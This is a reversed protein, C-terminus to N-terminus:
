IKGGKMREQERDYRQWMEEILEHRKVGWAFDPVWEGKRFAEYERAINRAAVRLKVWEDEEFEVLEVTDNEMEWFEVKMDPRGVNLSGSPATLRLEGKSGQIRWEITPTGPFPKGGRLHISVPIYDEGMTAQFMMQDPVTNPADKVVVEGGKAPDVVDKVAHRNALLSDWSKVEGLVAAFGEFAHGFRISVLNGGVERDMFYRVNKVETEGGNIESAFVTSSLVRGLKGDDIYKKMMRMGPDFAAQLGVVTRSGSKAALEMMERAITVNKDLPWEMFVDKGAELSPKVTLFHRDVRVSCVVLDVEQDEALENPDEYARVSSPLNYRKIASRASAVSSNMLAVIEYHPSALLYPLHANATWSVGEYESIPGGPLGILAVRIPKTPEAM